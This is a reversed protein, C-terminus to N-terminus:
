LKLGKAKAVIGKATVTVTEGIAVHQLRRATGYDVPLVLIEEGDKLLALMEGEVRRLGAFAATGGSAWDCRRHKPVGSAKLRMFEREAIYNDAAAQGATM